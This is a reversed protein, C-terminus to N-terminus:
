AAGRMRKTFEIRRPCIETLRCFRCCEQNGRATWPAMGKVAYEADLYDFGANIRKPVEAMIFDRTFSTDARNNIGFRVGWLVAHVEQVEPYALFVLYAYFQLQLDSHASYHALPRFGFKYDIIRAKHKNVNLFDLSGAFRDVQANPDVPQLNRDFALRLEFQTKGTDPLDFGQLFIEGLMETEWMNWDDFGEAECIKLRLRHYAQKDNWRKAKILHEGYVASLAHMATGVASEESEREVVGLYETQQHRFLCGPKFAVINGAKDMVVFVIDDLRTTSLHFAPRM